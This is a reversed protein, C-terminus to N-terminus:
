EKKKLTTTYVSETGQDQLEEIVYDIFFYKHCAEILLPYNIIKFVNAKYLIDNQISIIKISRQWYNSIEAFEEEKEFFLICKIENFYFQKHYLQPLICRIHIREKKCDVSVRRSYYCNRFLLYILGLSLFIVIIMSLKNINGFILLRVFFSLCAMVLVVFYIKGIGIDDTILFPKFIGSKLISKGM